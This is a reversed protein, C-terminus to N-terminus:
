RKINNAMQLMNDATQLAKSTAEYARQGVIMAVMEEVINVNSLELFMNSVTGFGDSGPTGEVAEGSAETVRLLNRGVAYLGGPNMFSYLTLEASTLEAADSGGFATLTGDAQVSILTTEEPVSIEPQLREGAATSVFGESDITFNGARTYLEEDGSLVKFFGKGEIALDLENGTESYDGQTYIKQVSAPRAGMGCQIGIPVQGGSSTTAGPMQITQYMLDQFNNRSKKFGVTNANALNNACVDISMQQAVMGSAATWLGRLM